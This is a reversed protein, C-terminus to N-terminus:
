LFSRCKKVVFGDAWISEYLWWTESLFGGNGSKFVGLFSVNSLRPSFRKWRGDGLTEMNLVRQHNYHTLRGIFQPSWCFHPRDDMLQSNKLLWNRFPLNRVAAIAQFVTIVAKLVWNVHHVYIYIGRMNFVELRFWQKTPFKWMNPVM